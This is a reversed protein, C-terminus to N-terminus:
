WPTKQQRSWVEISLIKWSITNNFIEYKVTSFLERSRAQKTENTICKKAILLRTETNESTWRLVRKKNTQNARFLIRLVKLIILSFFFNLAYEKFLQKEDTKSHHNSEILVVDVSKKKNLSCVGRTGPAVNKSVLHFLHFFIDNTSLLM